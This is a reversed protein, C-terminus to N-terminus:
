VFSGYLLGKPFQCMLWYDFIFYTIAVTAAAVVLTTSWRLPEILRILFVIFLFTTVLYGLVSLLLVYAVLSAVALVQRNWRPRERFREGEKRMEPFFFLKILYMLSLFILLCGTLFPFFGSGPSSAKGLNLDYSMFCVGLGLCLWIFGAMRQSILM